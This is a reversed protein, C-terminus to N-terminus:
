CSVTFQGDAIIDYTDVYGGRSVIHRGCMCDYELISCHYITKWKCFPCKHYLNKNWETTFGATAGAAVAAVSAAIFKRRDM